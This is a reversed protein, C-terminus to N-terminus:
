YFFPASQQSLPAVSHSGSRRWINFSLLVSVRPRPLVLSWRLGIQAPAGAINHSPVYPRYGMRGYLVVKGLHRWGAKKWCGPVACKPSLEATVLVGSRLYGAFGPLQEWSGDLHQYDDFNKYAALITPNPM